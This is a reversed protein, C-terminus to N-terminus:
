CRRSAYIPRFIPIICRSEFVQSADSHKSVQSSGHRNLRSSSHPRRALDDRGEGQGETLLISSGICNCMRSGLIRAVTSLAWPLLHNTAMFLELQVIPMQSPQIVVEHLHCSTCAQGMNPGALSTPCPKSELRSQRITSAAAMSAAQQMKLFWRTPECSVHSSCGPETDTYRVVSARGKTLSTSITPAQNM